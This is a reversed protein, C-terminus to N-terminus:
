TTSQCANFFNSSYDHAPPIQTHDDQKSPKSESADANQGFEMTSLWSRSAAILRSVTNAKKASPLTHPTRAALAQFLSAPVGGLGCMYPPYIVTDLSKIQVYKSGKRVDKKSIVLEWSKGGKRGESRWILICCCDSLCCETLCYESDQSCVANIEKM